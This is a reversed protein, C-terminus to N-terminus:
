RPRARRPRRGAAARGLSPRPVRSRARPADRLVPDDGRGGKLAGLMAAHWDPTKGCLVLVRDGRDLRTRLLRAWRAGDGAMEGFSRRDVIGERDVFTLAARGHSRALPEIVDRTFNFRAPVDWGHPYPGARPVAATKRRRLM